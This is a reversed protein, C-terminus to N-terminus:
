NIETSDYNQGDDIAVDKKDHPVTVDVSGECRAGSDDQAIFGINYVRGNGNGSRESRVLATSSGVGAGDPSTDGDGLGEVALSFSGAANTTTVHDSNQVRVNANGVPGLEDLVVGEIIAQANTPETPKCASQTLCLIAAIVFNALLLLISKHM